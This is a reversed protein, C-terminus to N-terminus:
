KIRAAKTIFVGTVGEAVPKGSTGFYTKYLKEIDEKDMPQRVSLLYELNLDILNLSFTWVINSLSVDLGKENEKMKYTGRLTRSEIVGDKDRSITEEYEGDSLTLVYSVKNAKAINLHYNIDDAITKDSCEFWRESVVWEGEVKFDPEESDGSCASMIYLIPLLIMLLVFYKRKM